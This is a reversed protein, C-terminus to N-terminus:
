PKKKPYGELFEVLTLLIEAVVDQHDREDGGQPQIDRDSILEQAKKLVYAFQDDNLIAFEGRLAKEWAAHGNVNANKQRELWAIREPNEVEVKEWNKSRAQAEAGTSHQVTEGRLLSFYNYLKPPCDSAPLGAEELYNRYPAPM